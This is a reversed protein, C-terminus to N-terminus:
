SWKSCCPSSPPLTQWGLVGLDTEVKLDSSSLEGAAGSEEGSSLVPFLPWGLGDENWEALPRGSLSLLMDVVLLPPTSPANATAAAAEGDILSCCGPGGGGGEAAMDVKQLRSSGSSM